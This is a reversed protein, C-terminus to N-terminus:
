LESQALIKCVKEAIAEDEQPLLGSVGVGYQATVVGGAIFLADTVKGLEAGTLEGTNRNFMVATKAKRIAIEISAKKCATNRKFFLLHGGDDTIALCIPHAAIIEAIAAVATITM